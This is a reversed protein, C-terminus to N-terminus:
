EHIRRYSVDLVADALNSLETTVDSLTAVGLADRLVIRLLQRRRFRALDVAEPVGRADKGLFEFLREAYEEATLVRYFSGSNSVQLIREPNRMVADSLFKSHSFVGVACRLAAPSSVIRSFASPSEERLRDLYFVAKDVDPAGALLLQIRAAIREPIAAELRTLAISSDM